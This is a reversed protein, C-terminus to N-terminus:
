EEYIKINNMMYKLTKAMNNIAQEHHYSEYTHFLIKAICVLLIELWRDEDTHIHSLEVIIETAVENDDFCDDPPKSM